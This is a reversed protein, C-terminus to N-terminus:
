GLTRYIGRRGRRGPDGPNESAKGGVGQCAAKKVFFSGEDRKVRRVVLPMRSQRGRGTQM